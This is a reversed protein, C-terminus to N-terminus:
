SPPGNRLLIHYCPLIEHLSKISQFQISELISPTQIIVWGFFFLYIDYPAHVFNAASLRNIAICREVDGQVKLVM